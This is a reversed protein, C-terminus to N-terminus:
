RRARTGRAGRRRSAESPRRPGRPTARARSPARRTPIPRLGFRMEWTRAFGLREYMGRGATAAHLTMRQFGRDKAWRLAERVIRTALGKGRYEPETYMSLLYPMVVDDWGPRPQNERLWVCGGAVVRREATEALWGVLRESRLRQRAWPRYARDAADLEGETHDAIDRWMMRRQHVLHELDRLTARRIRIGKAAPVM